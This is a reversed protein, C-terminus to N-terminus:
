NQQKSKKEPLYQFFIDRGPSRIYTYKYVRTRRPGIKYQLEQFAECCVRYIIKSHLCLFRLLRNQESKETEM